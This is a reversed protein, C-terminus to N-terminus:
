SITYGKQFFFIEAPSIQDPLKVLKKAMEMKTIIIKTGSKQLKNILRKCSILAEPQNVRRRKTGRTFIIKGIKKNKLFPVSPLL